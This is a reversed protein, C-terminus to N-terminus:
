MTWKSLCWIKLAMKMPTIDSVCWARPLKVFVKYM